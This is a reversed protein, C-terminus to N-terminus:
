KSKIFDLEFKKIGSIYRLISDSCNDSMEVNELVTYLDREHNLVFNLTSGRTFREFKYWARQHNLDGHVLLSLGSFLISYYLFFM